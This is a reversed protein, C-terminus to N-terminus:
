YADQYWYIWIYSFALLLFLHNDNTSVFKKYIDHFYTGFMDVMQAQHENMKVKLAPDYNSLLYMGGYMLFLMIFSSFKM